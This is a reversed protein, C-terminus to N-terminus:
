KTIKRDGDADLLKMLQKKMHELDSGKECVENIFQKAENQELVGSGDTDFALWIQDVLQQIEESM